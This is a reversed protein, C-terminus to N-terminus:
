VLRTAQIYVTLSDFDAIDRCGIHWTFSSSNFDDSETGIVAGLLDVYGRDDLTSGTSGGDFVKTVVNCLVRETGSGTEATRDADTLIHQSSVVLDAAWVRKGEHMLVIDLTADGAATQASQEGVAMVRVAQIQSDGGRYPGDRGMSVRKYTSFSASASDFTEIQVTM